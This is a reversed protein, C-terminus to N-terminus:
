CRQNATGPWTGVARFIGGMWTSQVALDPLHEALISWPRHLGEMTSVSYMAAQWVFLNVPWIVPPAWQLGTAVVKAGPRLHRLVCAIAKPERLIDHTFHLLAADAQGHWTADQASANLLTIQRWGAAQIRERAKALMPPSQEIGVISGAPGLLAKLPEFSLGTGCGVDLVSDGRSLGLQGIARHRLPEFMTLEQDYFAARREYCALASRRDPLLRRSDQVSRM